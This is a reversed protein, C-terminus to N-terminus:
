IIQVGRFLHPWHRLCFRVSQAQFTVMISRWPIRKRLSSCGPWKSLSTHLYSFITVVSLWLAAALMDQVCSFLRSSCHLSLGAGPPSVGLALERWLAGLPSNYWSSEPSKTALHCLPACVFLLVSLCPFLSCDQGGLYLRGRGGGSADVRRKWAPWRSSFEGWPGWLSHGPEKAQFPLSVNSFAQKFSLSDSLPLQFLCAAQSLQRLSWGATKTSSEGDSSEPNGQRRPSAWYMHPRFLPCRSSKM